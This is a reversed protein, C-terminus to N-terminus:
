DFTANEVANTGVIAAAFAFFSLLAIFCFKM